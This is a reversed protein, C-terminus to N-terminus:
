TNHILEATITNLGISGTSYPSKHYTLRAAEGWGSAKDGVAPIGDACIRDVLTGKLAQKGYENM